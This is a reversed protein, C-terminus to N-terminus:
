TRSEPFVLIGGLPHRKSVETIVFDNVYVSSWGECVCARKGVRDPLERRKLRQSQAEVLEFTCSEPCFMFVLIGGLHQGYGNVARKETIM